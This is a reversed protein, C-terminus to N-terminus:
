RKRYINQHAPSGMKMMGAGGMLGGMGSRPAAEFLDFDRGRREYNATSDSRATEQLKGRNADTLLAKAQAPTVQPERKLGSWRGKQQVVDLAYSKLIKPLQKRFLNRGAFIDAATVQGSAAVVM